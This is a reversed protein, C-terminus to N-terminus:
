SVTWLTVLWNSTTWTKGLSSIQPFVASHFTRDKKDGGGVGM